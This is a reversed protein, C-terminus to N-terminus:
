VEMECFLRSEACACDLFATTGHNIPTFSQATSPLLQAAATSSPMLHTLLLRCCQHHLWCSFALLLLLAHAHQAPASTRHSNQVCLQAVADTVFPLLASVAVYAIVVASVPTVPNLAM